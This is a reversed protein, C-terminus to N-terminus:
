VSPTQPRLEDEIEKAAKFFPDITTPSVIDVPVLWFYYKYDHIERVKIRDSECDMDIDSADDMIVVDVPGDAEISQVVGGTVDILVRTM